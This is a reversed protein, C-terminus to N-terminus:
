KKRKSAKPRKRGALGPRLENEEPAPGDEEPKPPEFKEGLLHYAAFLAAFLGAALFYVDMGEAFGTKMESVFFYFSGFLLAAGALLFFAKIKLPIGM